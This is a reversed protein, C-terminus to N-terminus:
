RSARGASVSQTPRLMGWLVLGASITIFSVWQGPTFVGHIPASLVAYDGRFLEVIFRIISYGILYLAFVEGPFRRRRFWWALFFFLALDLLAEYIQTPHVAHGHEVRDLPFHVGLVSDTPCGYCCGNMFCGLRGFVHGLAISPALCDATPWVPLRARLGRWLGVFFAGALGGYFVLGGNWIRFIDAIPHGAFDRDWYSVVYLARAGLLGGALLWPGLDLIADRNLGISAARRAATWLGVIFGLGVLLGFSHIPFGGVHFLISKLLHASVLGDPKAQLIESQTHCWRRAM